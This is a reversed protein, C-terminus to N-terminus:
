AHRYPCMRPKGIFDTKAAPRNVRGRGLNLGIDEILDPSQSGKDNRVSKLHLVDFRVAREVM